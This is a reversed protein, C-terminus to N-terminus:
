ELNDFFNGLNIQTMEDETSSRDMSNEETKLDVLEDIIRENVENFNLSKIRKYNDKSIESIWEIELLTDLAETLWDRKYYSTKDNWVCYYTKIIDELENFFFTNKTEIDPVNPIVLSWLITITYQVPPNTIFYLKEKELELEIDYIKTFQSLIKNYIEIITQNFRLEFLYYHQGDKSIDDTSVYTTISFNDIKDDDIEEQFHDRTDIFSGYDVILNVSHDNPIIDNGDKDLITKLNLYNNMQRSSDRSPSLSSKIENIVFLLNDDHIILDPPKPNDENDIKIKREPPIISISKGNKEILYKLAIILELNIKYRKYENILRNKLIKESNESM